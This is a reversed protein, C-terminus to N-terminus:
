ISLNFKAYWKQVTSDYENFLEEGIKYALPTLRYYIRNGATSHLVILERKVLSDILTKTRLNNWYGVFKEATRYSFETRCTISYIYLGNIMICQNATLKYKMRSVKLARWLMHIMIHPKLRDFSPMGVPIASYKVTNMTNNDTEKQKDAIM